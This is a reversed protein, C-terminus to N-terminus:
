MLSILAWRPTLYLSSRNHSNFFSILEFLIQHLDVFGIQQIGLLGGVCIIKYKGVASHHQQGRQCVIDNGVSGTVKLLKHVGRHANGYHYGLLRHGACFGYLDGQVLVDALGATIHTVPDGNLGIGDQHFAIVVTTNGLTQVKHFVQHTDTPRREQLLFDNGTLGHKLAAAGLRGETHELPVVLRQGMHGM